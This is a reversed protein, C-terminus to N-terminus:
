RAVRTQTVSPSTVTGEVLVRDDRRFLTLSVGTIKGREADFICPPGGTLVFKDEAATYVLQDGTARRTPQAVVVQGQAVIRDLQAASDGAPPGPQENRAHQNRPHLFVDMREATLTFDGAKATVEGELRARREKDVYTLRNSMLTVPSVHGDKDTQILVISVPQKAPNSEGPQDAPGKATVGHAVMSRHDRNFEIVPAEIVNADQWLRAQGIYTAIAPTRHITMARATVHIPSASSLLAGNPEAKLDSYTSKVDGEAVADGSARNLRMTRATTTMGSDQVRPSGNLELIQDSPTYRARDAWAKLDGDVYAVGGAQTISAVGKGPDFTVDLSKGTSVRDPQKPNSSVIRADPSGQISAIRGAHDFRAEFKGATVVTPGATSSVPRVVIRGAGLTQASELRRGGALLFDIAPASLEVDQANASHLSSQQRQRLTVGGEAHVKALIRKGTFSLVVRSANGQVPEAGAAEMQVDGSFVASQLMEERGTLSVELKAALIQGQRVGRSQAGSSQVLVGGSAVVRDITNNPRLFLKATEAQASQKADEIRADDLEIAKPKKTIIGRAATITVPDAGSLAMHVESQLTLVNDKASYSVGQAWGRAQPIRFDIRQHTYANGTKQNFVLGSTEIHIPDKLEKPPAQDASTLGAPNAELDIQVPGDATVDGSQPDYEFDSGYIQDFRSSDQGYLVIAVGHLEARGGVKYKVVKQAQIKFLTRGEVSRSVTFGNASQQIELGIKAPVQKLANQVKHQAYFYAGAVVAVALVAGAAFWRRLRSPQFAM